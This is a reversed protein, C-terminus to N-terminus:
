LAITAPKDIHIKRALIELAHATQAREITQRQAVAEAIAEFMQLPQHSGAARGTPNSYCRLFRELYRPYIPKKSNKHYIQAAKEWDPRIVHKLLEKRAEKTIPCDDTSM